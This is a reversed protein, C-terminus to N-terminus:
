LWELAVGIIHTCVKAQAGLFNERPSIWSVYLRPVLHPAAHGVSGAAVIRGGGCWVLTAASVLLDGSSLCSTKIEDSEKRWLASRNPHDADTQSLLCRLPLCGASIVFGTVLVRSLSRRRASLM